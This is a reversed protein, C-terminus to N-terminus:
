LQRKRGNKKGGMELNQLFIGWGAPLTFKVRSFFEREWKRASLPGAGKGVHFVCVKINYLLNKFLFLRGEEM